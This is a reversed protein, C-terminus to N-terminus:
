GSDMVQRLCRGLRAPLVSMGIGTTMQEVSPQPPTTTPHHRRRHRRPSRCVTNSKLMKSPRIRDREALLAILELDPHLKITELFKFVLQLESEELSRLQNPVNEFDSYIACLTTIARAKGHAWFKYELSREDYDEDHCRRLINGLSYPKRPRPSTLSSILRHQLEVQSIKHQVQRLAEHIGSIPGKASLQWTFSLFRELTTHLECGDELTLTPSSESELEASM